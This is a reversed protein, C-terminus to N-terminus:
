NYSPRGAYPDGHRKWRLYHPNCYGNSRHPKNCDPLSCRKEFWGNAIHQRRLNESGTVAELHDPRVCRINRCLHDVEYGDPIPGIFWEHSVRHALKNRRDISFLPYGSESEAKGNWVWCKDTKDVKSWFRARDDGVIRLGEPEATGHTFTRNYHVSCM